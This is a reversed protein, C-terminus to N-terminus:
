FVHVRTITRDPIINVRLTARAGDPRRLVIEHPGEQLPHRELPTHTAVLAGDVYVKAWPQANITVFGTRKVLTTAVPAIPPVVFAADTQRPVAVTEWPALKATTPPLGWAFFLGMCAAIFVASAIFPARLRPRMPAIVTRPLDAEVPTLRTPVAHAGVWTALESRSARPERTLAAAFARADPYRADKEFALARALLPDITPPVHGSQASSLVEESTGTYAPKGTLLEHLLLGASFIDSRHDVRAGKAQEPSMYGLKGKLQGTRTRATQTLAKALGFDGLKVVGDNGVLVNGPSVDRHVIELGSGAADKLTHAHHLAALIDVMIALAIERPLPLPLHALDAGEVWELAICWLSDTHVPELVRIINPHDLQASLEAERIFSATLEPDDACWPLLIKLAVRRSDSRRRALFVEASAGRGIIGLLEYDGVRKV